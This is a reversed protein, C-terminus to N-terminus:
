GSGLRVGRSVSAAPTVPVRMRGSVRRAYADVDRGDPVPVVYASGSGALLAPAEAAAELDTRFQALRPEVAEAAPELDNSLEPLLAAVAGTAPVSRAARPRGLDDWARYVTPTSLRFPPLAVLFPMGAPLDVAEIREGRGRMWAAGGALCFSVDSGLKAGLELLTADDLDIELMRRIAVLTAAADASGGGLGAGSPIKKRVILEVGHGSRGARVLLEDAARAALNTMGTPVDDTEGRMKLTVGGPHPVARVEIVDHPDSISVALAELEHFGDDRLAGVQLSLTLKSYATARVRGLRGATTLENVRCGISCTGGM